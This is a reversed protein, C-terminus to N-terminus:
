QAQQESRRPLSSGDTGRLADLAAIVTAPTLIQPLVRPAPADSYLLYLPVGSRGQTALAQTIAPDPRTWDAKLYAVNAHRFADAVAATTLAVRENVQCTICWAATFDVFVPRGQAQLEAVREPSWREAELAARAAQDAPAPGASRASDVGLPVFLAAAIAAARWRRTAGGHQAIGWAWAAIAAAVAAAFLGPLGAGGTQLALVWVLWLAAAYMPFALAKRFRDLWAGPRPLLRTLRPVYSLVVFPMALGGGLAAFVPLSIGPAQTLSWGIAPGMMPATCPAAVVAALAGTLFAGVLGAGAPTRVRQLVLGAEFVGSLNLGALLMVLALVSVVFPSQLQFGWGVHEGAARAAILLGALSLFAALSGALFALAERRARVADGGHDALAAAKMSLIPFVCPMLNLILGGLFALLAASWLDAGFASATQAGAAEQEGAWRPLAGPTAEVAYERGDGLVLVGAIARKADFDKVAATRIISGDRVASVTQAANPDVVGAAEPYFYSEGAAAVAPLAFTIRDAAAAYVASVAPRRAVQEVVTRIAARPTADAEPAAAVIGIELDLDARQPICIDRCLLFTAHARLTATEGVKADAPAELRIPLLM